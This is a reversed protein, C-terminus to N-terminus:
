WSLLSEDTFKELAESTAKTQRISGIGGGGGGAIGGSEQGWRQSVGKGGPRDRWRLGSVVCFHGPRVRSEQSEESYKSCKETLGILM